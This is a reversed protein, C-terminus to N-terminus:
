TISAACRTLPKQTAGLTMNQSRSLADACGRATDVHAHVTCLVCMDIMAIYM